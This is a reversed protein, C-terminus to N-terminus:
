GEPYLYLILDLEPAKVGAQTLMTHVQGRHHTQHNFAESLVLSLRTSRKGGEMTTYNLDKDIDPAAIADVIAVINKDEEERAARLESRCEYLPQGPDTLGSPQGVIRGFWLRDVFLIHDLTRHISGFFAGRQRRYEADSLQACADYLRRNAWANYRAFTAFQGHM